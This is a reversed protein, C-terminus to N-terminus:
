DAHGVAPPDSAPFSEEGAEDIPDGVDDQLACRRRAEAMECLLDYARKLLALAPAVDAEGHVAYSVWGSAPLTHHPRAEGAEVLRDRVARPFPVDLVGDVHLHALVARGVRFETGGFRHPTETVGPWSSVETRIRRAAEELDHVGQSLGHSM